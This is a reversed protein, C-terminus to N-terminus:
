GRARPLMPFSYPYVFIVFESFSYIIANATFKLMQRSKRCTNRKQTSCVVVVLVVVVVVM